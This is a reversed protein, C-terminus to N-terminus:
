RLRRLAKDGFDGTTKYVKGCKLCVVEMTIKEPNWKVAVAGGCDQETCRGWEFNEAIYGLLSNYDDRLAYRFFELGEEMKERVYSSHFEKPVFKEMLFDMGRYAPRGGMLWSQFRGGEVELAVWALIINMLIESGDTLAWEKWAQKNMVIVKRM